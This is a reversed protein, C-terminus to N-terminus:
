KRRKRKSMPKDESEESEESEDDELDQLTSPDEAKVEPAPKDGSKAQLEELRKKYEAVVKEASPLHRYDPPIIEPSVAFVGDCPEIGQGRVVVKANRFEVVAHPISTGKLIEEPTPAMSKHFVLVKPKKLADFM